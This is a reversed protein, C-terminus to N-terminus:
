RLDTTNVNERIDYDVNDIVGSSFLLKQWFHVAHKM